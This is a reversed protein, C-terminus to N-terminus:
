VNGKKLMMMKKMKDAARGMISPKGAHDKDYLMEAMRLMEESPMDPNMEESEGEEGLVLEDGPEENEEVVMECDEISDGGESEKREPALGTKEAQEQEEKGEEAEEGNLVESDMGNMKKM